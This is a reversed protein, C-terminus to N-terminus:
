AGRRAFANSCLRRLGPALRMAARGLTAAPDSEPQVMRPIGPVSRAAKLADDAAVKIHPIVGVGEWNTKAIPNFARAYPVPVMFHENIPQPM